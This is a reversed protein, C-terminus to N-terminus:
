CGAEVLLDDPYFTKGDMEPDVRVHIGNPTPLFRMLSANQPRNEPQYAELYQERGWHEVNSRFGIISLHHAFVWVKDPIQTNYQEKGFMQPAEAGLHQMLRMLRPRHRQMADWLQGRMTPIPMPLGGNRRVLTAMFERIRQRVEYPTEAAAAKYENQTTHKYYLADMPNLACYVRWDRCMGRHGHDQERLRPDERFSVRELDPWVRRGIEGIQKVRKYPSEYVMKPLELVQEDRITEFTVEMQRKGLPTIPCDSDHYEAMAWDALQIALGKVEDSPWNDVTALSLDDWERDFAAKFRQYLENERKEQSFLNYESQPHRWWVTEDPWIQFQESM